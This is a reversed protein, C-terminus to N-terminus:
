PALEPAVAVTPATVSGVNLGVFREAVGCLEKVDIKAATFASTPGM